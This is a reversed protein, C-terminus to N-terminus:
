TDVIRITVVANRTGDIGAAVVATTIMPRLDARILTKALNPVAILCGAVAHSGADDIAVVAIVTGIIAAIRGKAAHV